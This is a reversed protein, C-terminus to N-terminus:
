PSQHARAASPRPLAILALLVFYAAAMAHFLLGPRAPPTWDGPQPLPVPDWPLGYKAALGKIYLLHIVPVGRAAMEAIVGRRSEPPLPVKRNLGPQLELVRSSTGLNAYAGGINIFAAVDGYIRMRMRVNSSLDPEQIFPLGSDSIQRILRERLEPDFGLGVDREGGLTVAAPPTSFVGERLLLEYLHLLNFGAGTAGYSSAGLSIIAVPEAELARAAALSALLLAPFSGSSGIAIRSGPAVGARCLLHVLLGAFNPNTTTRKAELSGLSTMLEDAERGILGTRNPDIAEDPASPASPAHRAVAALARSMTRSAELAAQACPAADRSERLRAPVFAALSLAAALMVRRAKERRGFARPGKSVRPKVDGLEM